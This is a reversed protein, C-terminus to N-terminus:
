AMSTAAQLPVSANAYDCGVTVAAISVIKLM